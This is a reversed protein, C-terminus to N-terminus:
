EKACVINQSNRKEKRISDYRGGKPKNDSEYNSRSKMHGSGLTKLDKNAELEQEFLLELTAVLEKVVEDSINKLKPKGNVM